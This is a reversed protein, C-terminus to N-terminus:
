KIGNPDIGFLIISFEGHRNLLSSIQLLKLLIKSLLMKLSLCPFFKYGVKVDDLSPKVVPVKVKNNLPSSGGGASLLPSFAAMNRPPSPPLHSRVPSLSHRVPM